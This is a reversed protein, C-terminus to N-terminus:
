QAEIPNRDAVAQRPGSAQITINKFSTRLRITPGDSGLIGALSDRGKQALANFGVPRVQGSQSSADLVFESSEPLVLKIEGHDNEVSIKDYTQMTSILTVARYSTRVDVAEYFNKVVVGGHSTQVDVSGRIEDANVSCREAAV